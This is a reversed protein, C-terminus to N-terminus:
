ESGILRLECCSDWTVRFGFAEPLLTELIDLMAHFRAERLPLHGAQQADWRELWDYWNVSEADLQTM